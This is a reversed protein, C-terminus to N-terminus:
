HRHFLGRIVDRMDIEFGANIIPFILFWIALGFWILLFIAIAIFKLMTSTITRQKPPVYTELQRSCYPCSKHSTDLPAGCGPCRGASKISNQAEVELHEQQLLKAIDRVTQFLKSRGMMIELTVVRGDKMHVFMYVFAFTIKQIEKYNMVETGLPGHYYMHKDTMLIGYKGNGFTTSDFHLIINEGQFLQWNSKIIELKQHSIDEFVATRAPRRKQYINRFLQKFQLSLHNM